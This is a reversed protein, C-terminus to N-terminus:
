RRQALLARIKGRFPGKAAGGGRNSQWVSRSKAGIEQMSRGSLASAADAKAGIARAAAGSKLLLWAPKEGERRMRVLSWEGRLKKGALAFRLKGQRLGGDLLRWTGIDWVMVTGGGYQGRPITGEFRAYDMPHDEVEMALRQVGKQTPPGKPVAWSKLVGDMELRFDYHLHSAAHKQIVFLPDKGRPSPAGSEPEETRAFDRKKRYAKLAPKKRKPAPAEEAPAALKKEWGRPLKQKLTLVPAFLDGLKSVRKLAADAEFFLPAKKGTRACTELEKWTVPLSVYPRDKARLSYVSVTTKHASNQSWDVLVKGKRLDKRMNSVVKEPTERVLAEALARAFPATTEYAAPTNLPISVQIGKSGSVKAFCELGLAACRARLRLAVAACDVLDAPAGPDLDFVVQTPREVDRCTALFTHLELDGLNAAWLLTPLNNALCYHVEGAKKRRKVACTGVWSPRPSPCEKEYFFPAAVGNPYRKLTLPRNRLHPLLVPAIRVYYDLVQGKTFGTEPYFIKGLNSVPVNRNDVRLISQRRPEKM